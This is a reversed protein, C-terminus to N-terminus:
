STVIISYVADIPLLGKDTAAHVMGEGTIMSIMVAAAMSVIMAILDTADRLFDVTTLDETILGDILAIMIAVDELRLCIIIEWAIM